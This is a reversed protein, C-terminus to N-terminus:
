NVPPEGPRVVQPEPPEPRERDGPPGIWLRGRSRGCPPGGRRPERELLSRVRKQQEPTLVTKAALLTEVHQKMLETRLNSIEQVKKMVADHDPKDARLMERLEIRRVALDAGSKLSTKQAELLIQRLRDAQADTLRLDSKFDDNDLMALWHGFRPPGPRGGWDDAETIGAGWPAREQSWAMLALGLGGIMFVLIWLTWRTM